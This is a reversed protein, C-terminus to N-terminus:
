IGFQQFHHDTHKWLNMAHEQPTLPGFFGHPHRTVKDPGGQTFATMLEILRKKENKFDREDAVRFEPATPSNRPMPQDNFASKRALRGLLRIPWPARGSKRLDMAVEFARGTHTLMQAANMKGWLPQTEPTLKELRTLLVSLGDAEFLSKM